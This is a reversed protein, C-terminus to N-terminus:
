DAPAVEFGAARIADAVRTADAEGSIAVRGSCRDVAVEAQPAAGKVARAVAAECHGCNMGKVNLEM